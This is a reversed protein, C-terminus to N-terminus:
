RESKRWKELVTIINTEAKLNNRRGNPGGYYSTDNIGKQVDVLLLATSLDFKKIM